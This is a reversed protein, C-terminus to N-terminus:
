DIEIIDDVSQLLRLLFGSPVRFLSGRKSLTEWEADCINKLLLKAVGMQDVIWVDWLMGMGEVFNGM